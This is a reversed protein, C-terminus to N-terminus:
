TFRGFFSFFFFFYCVKFGLTKVILLSSMYTFIAEWSKKKKEVAATGKRIYDLPDECEMVPFRLLMYAMQNGWKSESGKKM